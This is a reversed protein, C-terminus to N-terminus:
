EAVLAKELAAVGVGPEVKYGGALLAREIAGLTTLLDGSNVAGMHGVRFYTARNAPHLGGAVVVGEAKIRGVLSADVGAPFCIASLTHALWEDRKPLMSLGLAGVGTQFAKALRRHRAFRPEMGEALIQRLSEALAYILNVPPTGYYAARRAEYARM